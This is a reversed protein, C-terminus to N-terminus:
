AGVVHPTPPVTPAHHVPRAPPAGMSLPTRTWDPIIGKKKTELDLDMSDDDAPPPQIVAEDWSERAVEAGGTKLAGALSGGVWAMTAPSFSPAKGANASARATVAPPPSPNNLIAFYPILPRLPAYKDYQPPLPRNPRTPHRKLDPVAAVTRIMEKQLRMIFGPLM